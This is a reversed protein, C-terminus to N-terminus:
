TEITSRREEVLAAYPTDLQCKSSSMEMTAIKIESGAAPRLDSLSHGGRLHDYIILFHRDSHLWRNTSKNTTVTITNKM